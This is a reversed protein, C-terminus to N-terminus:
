RAPPPKLAAEIAAKLTEYSSDAARRGNVFIVPTGSVGARQGALLDRSVEEAFTGGDLAADFKARDLGLRGAYEKLQALELASQNAFLLAVYEWYKGQARAAEAAEAAKQANAHQTLPFDRMVLRVRDGYEALLKELTTQTLACSQCQFDTFKIITVAANVNGKSPQNDTSIKIVPPVPPNLFIQLASAKRLRDAFALRLRTAEQEHLYQIIQPKVEAFEGNIRAKNENFFAQAQAETVAPVKAEVETDLLARTTVQRKQAENSLLMDNIKLDIDRMRLTYTQQQMDFVLPLLSDEIEASTIRQGNVHAFLRSRDSANAPPTAEKVLLQVTAAARLREAFKGALERQRQDRLYSIIDDKVKAFESQIRAKNADYFTQAEAETPEVAKAVVEQELLKQTSLKLRKAEAELLMSNIQLELERTRAAVVEAHLEAIRKQTEPNLDKQTLKVGNVVAIVEPLPLECACDAVPAVSPPGPKTQSTDQTAPQKVTQQAAAPAVVALAIIFGIIGKM